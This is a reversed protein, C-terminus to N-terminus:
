IKNNNNIITKNDYKNNNTHAGQYGFDFSAFFHLLIIVRSIFGAHVKVLVVFDSQCSKRM